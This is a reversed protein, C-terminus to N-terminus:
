FHQFFRKDEINVIMEALEEDTQQRHLLPKTHSPLLLTEIDDQGGEQQVEEFPLSYKQPKSFIRLSIIVVIFMSLIGIGIKKKM